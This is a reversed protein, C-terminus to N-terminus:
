SEGRFVLSKWVPKPSCNSTAAPAWGDRVILGARRADTVVAGMARRDASAPVLGRIDEALFRQHTEAYRRLAIAAASRWAPDIKSARSAAREQGVAARDAAADLEARREAYDLLPTDSISM